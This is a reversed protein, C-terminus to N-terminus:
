TNLNLDQSAVIDPSDNTHAFVGLKSSPYKNKM